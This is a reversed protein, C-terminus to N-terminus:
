KGEPNKWVVKALSWGGTKSKAAKVYKEDDNYIVDGDEVCSGHIYTAAYMGGVFLGVGILINKM